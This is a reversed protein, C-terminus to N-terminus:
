RPTLRSMTRKLEIKFRLGCVRIIEIPPLSLDTTILISRGRAPHDVLVFRVVTRLPGGFGIVACFTTGM